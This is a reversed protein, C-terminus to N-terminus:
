FMAISGFNSVGEVEVNLGSRLDLTEICSTHELFCLLM